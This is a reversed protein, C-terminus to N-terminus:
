PPNVSIPNVAAGSKIATNTTSTRAATTGAAAAADANIKATSVKAANNNAGIKVADQSKQIRVAGIGAALTTAATMADSFSKQGDYTRSSGDSRNTHNASGLTYSDEMVYREQSSHAVYHNVECSVLLPILLISNCWRPWRIALSSRIAKAWTPNGNASKPSIMADVHGKVRQQEINRRYESRTKHWYDPCIRANQRHLEDCQDM